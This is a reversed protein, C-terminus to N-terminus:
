SACSVTENLYEKLSEQWPRMKAGSFREYRETSMAVYAPRIALRNKIQSRDAKEVKVQKLDLWEKMRLTMEYRTAPGTNCIHFLDHWPTGSKKSREVLQKGIGILAESLDKMNTPCDTQDDLVQIKDDKKFRELIASVFNHPNNGHGFLWSTRVIVSSVASNKAYHEGALKTMGYINVPAVADEEKYLSRKRGDFVYDTSVYIWPIRHKECAKSLFKTAQANSEYAAAPNRECGDVDSYAAAHVVFAPHHKEFFGDVQEEKSLDCVIGGPSERRAVGVVEYFPQAVQVFARALMGTNGTIIVSPKKSNKEM